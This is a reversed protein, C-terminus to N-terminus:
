GLRLREIAGAQRHARALDRDVLGSYKLTASLTSHGLLRRVEDLGMGERLWSTAAYHRLAHPHLRRENSLGARTSLRHLIQVLNRRNLPRGSADCFLWNEAAPQPHVAIWARIARITTPNLRAIRDKRGKGQRVFLSADARQWDQVLLHLVESARLGADAMVLAMARNRKGEPTAPCARVVAAVEDDTPVDPLTRPARVVFGALPDRRLM